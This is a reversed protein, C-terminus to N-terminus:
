ADVGPGSSVDVGVESLEAGQPEDFTVDAREDEPGGTDALAM